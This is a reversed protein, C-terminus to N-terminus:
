FSVNNQEKFKEFDTLLHSALISNEKVLCPIKDLIPYVLFSEKAYMFNENYLEIKSRSIPCVYDTNNSHTSKKEIVILGTPNLPNISYDFLRNEIIKYGLKVAASHLNTIYGYKKMRQRALDNAFEYAPELLILYKNTIRYLEKLAEEEKGGNPEISHSTYVIDISNDLLPIEFLNAKFLNVDPVNLDTLFEKAFKLRSWSIDLGFIDSPKKKLNMLLSYLTTAEGVGVELISQVEDIKNIIRALGATYKEHHSSDKLFNRVYTGSQLEYSISINKVSNFNEKSYSKLYDSINEGKLFLEKMKKMFSIKEM